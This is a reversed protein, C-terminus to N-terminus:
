KKWLYIYVSVVKDWKQQKVWEFGRESMEDLKKGNEALNKLQLSLENANRSILVSEAFPSMKLYDKKIQNNYTALVTKKLILGELIGLYRSTFVYRYDKIFNAATAKFGFFKISLKNKRVFKEALARLSGDGFVDLRLLIGMERLLRLAELYEMIGVEEELRGIFIADKSPSKKNLSLKLLEPSVGGYTIFDPKTGYWKELFKGVCINGKTLKEAIKHLLKSRFGPLDNGEYGHFTIFMKKTPFFIKFPLLWFFVDHVHIIDAESVLSLNKYVNKWVRFKKFWNDSGNDIRVIKIGDLKDPGGTTETLVTVAHGKQVLIKGVEYVHKEVGGIHPYFLRSLFLIKMSPPCM